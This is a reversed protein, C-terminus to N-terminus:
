HEVEVGDIRVPRGLQRGMYTSPKSESRGVDEPIIAVTDPAYASAGRHAIVRFPDPLM